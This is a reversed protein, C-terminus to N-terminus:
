FEFPFPEDLYIDKDISDMELQTLGFDDLSSTIRKLFIGNKKLNNSLANTNCKQQFSKTPKQYGFSKTKFRKSETFCSNSTFNSIDIPEWNPEGLITKNYRELESQGQDDIRNFYSRYLPWAQLTSWDIPSFGPVNHELAKEKPPMYEPDISKEINELIESKNSKSTTYISPKKLLSKHSLKIEQKKASVIHSEPLITHLCSNLASSKPNLISIPVNRANTDKGGLIQRQRLPTILSATPCGGPDRGDFGDMYGLKSSLKIGQAPTQLATRVLINEKDEYM